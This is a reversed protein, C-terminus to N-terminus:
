ITEIDGAETTGSISFLQCQRYATVSWGRSRDVPHSRAHVTGHDTPTWQDSRTTPRMGMTGAQSCGTRPCLCIRGLFLRWHSREKLMSAETAEAVSTAGDAAGDRDLDVDGVAQGPEGDHAQGVGRHALCAVPDAGGDERAAQRPRQPPDRDVQRGRAHALAAGAEVQGDGDAEEDGGALQAGPAGLAEGEAAFQAQVARQAVHRAHDGQGVRRRREAQHDRQAVDPLRRQHAAASTARRPWARRATATRRPRRGPGRRRGRGGGTAAGAGDRGRGVDPALRDAPTGSSTAAAPRWWRRMTPGGPEPLVMSASRRAPRSGGSSARRRASPSGCGSPPRSRGARRRAARGAAREARRVVLGGDDREDAPPAPRESGALHAQGGVADEEEVLEALEGDHRRSASRWGSSSPTIRTLRAPPVTVKGAAKRRTAAM